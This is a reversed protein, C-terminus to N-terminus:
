WRIVGVGGGIDEALAKLREHLRHHSPDLWYNVSNELPFKVVGHEGVRMLEELVKPQLETPIHEIVENCFVFEFEKDAFPLPLETLDLKVVGRGGKKDVGVWVYGKAEAHRRYPADPGCGADLLKGRKRSPPMLSAALESFGSAEIPRKLRLIEPGIRKTARLAEELAREMALGAAEWTFRRAREVARESLRKRLGDDEYLTLMKDRADSAKTTYITFCEATFMEEEWCEVLLGADGLVEPIATNNSAAQPVGCAMAELIPLGFGEGSSLLVHVDLANYIQAMEEESQGWFKSARLSPMMVRGQLGLKVVLQPIDWGRINTEEMPLAHLYLMCERKVEEPLMSFAKLLVPYEKRLSNRAVMGFVFKDECNEFRPKPNMPRFVSTDVGHPVYSAEVNHESLVKQGFRSPTAVHTAGILSQLFQLSLSSFEVTAYWLLPLGRSACVSSIQNYPPYWCSGYAVVVDPRVEDLFAPLLSFDILPYHKAGDIEVPRGGYQPNGVHVEYGRSTLHKILHSAVKGLGTPLLPSPSIWAVRV